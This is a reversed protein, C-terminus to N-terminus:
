AAIYPRAPMRHGVADTRYILGTRVHWCSLISSAYVSFQMLKHFWAKCLTPHCTVRKVALRSVISAVSRLSNPHLSHGM